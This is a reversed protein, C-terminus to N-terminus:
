INTFSSKIRLTQTFRFYPCKNYKATPRISEGSGTGLVVPKEKTLPTNNSSYTEEM